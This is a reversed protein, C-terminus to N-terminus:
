FMVFLLLVHIHWVQLMWFVVNLGSRPNEHSLREYSIKADRSSLHFHITDSLFSSCFVPQFKFGEARSGIFVLMECDTDRWLNWWKM